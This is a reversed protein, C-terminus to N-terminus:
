YSIFLILGFGGNARLSAIKKLAPSGRTEFEPSLRELKKSPSLSTLCLFVETLKKNAM